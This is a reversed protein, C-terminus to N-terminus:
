FFPFFHRVIFILIRDLFNLNKFSLDPRSAEKRWRNFIAVLSDVAEKQSFFVGIELNLGFSFLDLNQSGVVAEQKDIIMGKAHNMDKTFYFNVGVSALRSANIYNIRNLLKVDTDAPIIISVDVERKVANDLAALLWRPPLLYPTVIEVTSKAETIKKQYYNRFIYQADETEWSDLAWAKIKKVLPIESYNLVEEQKGGCKQYTRAFSRLFPKVVTGSLRIQLDHWNRIKKYINVGGLFAIKEDIIILKRHTRRLWRSFFIFEIGAQRLENVSTSKLSISGYADAIIVVQVGALAKAKLKGLFDHTQSTDDLFIYMEIFISKEAKDIAKLIGDWAKNSITYFKYVM